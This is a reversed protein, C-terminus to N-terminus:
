SFHSCTALPHEDAESTVSRDNVSSGRQSRMMTPDLGCYILSTGLIFTVSGWGDWNRGIINSGSLCWCQPFHNSDSWYRPVCTIYSWPTTPPPSHYWPLPSPTRKPFTWPPRTTLAPYSLFSSQRHRSYSIPQHTPSMRLSWCATGYGLAGSGKSCCGWRRRCQFSSCACTLWGFGSMETVTGCCGTGHHAIKGNSTSKTLSSSRSSAPTPPTDSQPPLNSVNTQPSPPSCPRPPTSPWYSYTRNPPTQPSPCSAPPSCSNSPSRTNIKRCRPCTRLSPGCPGSIILPSITWWDSYCNGWLCTM